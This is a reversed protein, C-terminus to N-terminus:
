LYEYLEIQSGTEGYVLIACEGWSDPISWRNGSSYSFEQRHRDCRIDVTHINGQKPSLSFEKRLLDQNWPKNGIITGQMTIVETSALKDLTSSASQFLAAYTAQESPELVEKLKEATDLADSIKQTSFQVIYLRVLVQKYIPDPLYRGSYAGARLLSKLEANKNGSKKYYTSALLWYYADEYLSKTHKERIEKILINAEVLSENKILKNAKKYHGIFKRSAGKKKGTNQNRIAFTVKVKRQTEDIAQGNKTAPKYKWKAATELAAQEFREIGSSDVIVPDIVDGNKNIVFSVVAWGEHRRQLETQPYIPPIRELPTANTFVTSDLSSTTETAHSSFSFLLGFLILIIM